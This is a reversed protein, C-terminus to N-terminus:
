DSDRSPRVKPVSKDYIKMTADSVGLADQRDARNGATDTGGTRKLDHIGFRQEEAKVGERLAMQIFRQWASDLSSKQIPEGHQTLILFRHEARLQVPLSHRDIVTQRLATAADWAARLRPPWEVLNDRSRKRRNTHLGEEMAHADTLTIIEVGRLRCLYGIEM